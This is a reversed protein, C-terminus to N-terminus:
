SDASAAQLKRRSRVMRNRGHVPPKRISADHEMLYDEIVEQSGDLGYGSVFAGRFPGCLVGVVRRRRVDAVKPVPLSDDTTPPVVRSRHRPSKAV